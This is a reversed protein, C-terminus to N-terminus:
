ATKFELTMSLGGSERNKAFARGGQLEMLRRVQFLSETKEPDAPRDFITELAEPPVGPGEDNITLRVPDGLLIAQITSGASAHALANTFVYEIIWILAWSEFVVSQDTLFTEIEIERSRALEAIDDLLYRLVETLPIPHSFDTPISAVLENGIRQLAENFAKVTDEALRMNDIVTSRVEEISGKISEVRSQVDLRHAELRISRAQTTEEVGEINPPTEESM